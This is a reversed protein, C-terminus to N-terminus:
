RPLPQGGDVARVNRSRGHRMWIAVDLTRLTTPHPHIGEALADIRHRRVQDGLAERMSTWFTGPEPQLVEEVVSDWIPILRPRKRALLKGATTSGVGPLKTLAEWLSTAANLAGDDADWLDVGAPVGGLLRSWHEGHLLSRIAIPGCAVDLTTLALLDGATFRNPPNDGDDFTHGAFPEDPDYYTHVLRPLSDDDLEADIRQAFTTM